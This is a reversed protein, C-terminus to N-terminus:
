ITTMKADPPITCVNSNDRHKTKNNTKYTSFPKNEQTEKIDGYKPISHYV